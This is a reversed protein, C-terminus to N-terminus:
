QLFGSTTDKYSIMYYPITNQSYSLSYIIFHNLDKSVLGTLCLLNHGHECFRM